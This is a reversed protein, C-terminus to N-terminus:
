ARAQGAFWARLRGQRRAADLEAALAQDQLRRQARPRRYDSALALAASRALTDLQVSGPANLLEACLELEGRLAALGYDAPDFGHTRSDEIAAILEQVQAKSWDFRQAPATPSRGNAAAGDVAPAFASTAAVLALGMAGVVIRSGARPKSVPRVITPV